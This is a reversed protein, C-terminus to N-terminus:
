SNGGKTYQTCSGRVKLVPRFVFAGSGATGSKIAAMAQRVCERGMDEIPQAVTTLPPDLFDSLYIDDFGVVSIDDPIRIGYLRCARYVGLAMMDNCAFVATVNQDLLCPLARSGSEASFDGTYVLGSDFPIKAEELANKFGELRQVAGPVNEPGSICGIRKHGLSLLHKAALYGGLRHDLVVSVIGPADPTRDVMIVPVNASKVIDLFRKSDDPGFSNSLSMIVADVSRDLFINLYEFDRKVSGHTNGYLVSYGYRSCEDEIVRALEAFFPNSIDPLILGLTQTQRTVMSVAIHNPRYNLERAAALIKRRTGESIRNPKNNLVLSVTTTSLGVKRAVDQLTARV